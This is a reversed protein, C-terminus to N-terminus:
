IGPSIRAAITAISSLLNRDCKPTSGIPMARALQDSSDVTQATMGTVYLSLEMRERVDFGKGAVSSFQTGADM